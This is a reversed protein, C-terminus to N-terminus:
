WGPSAQVFLRLYGSLPRAYYWTTLNSLSLEAHLDLDDDAIAGCGLMSNFFDDMM